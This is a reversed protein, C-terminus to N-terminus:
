DDSFRKGLTRVKRESFCATSTHLCCTASVSRIRRVHGHKHNGITIFFDGPTREKNWFMTAKTMIPLVGAEPNFLSQRIGYGPMERRWNHYEATSQSNELRSQRKQLEDILDNRALGNNINLARPAPM